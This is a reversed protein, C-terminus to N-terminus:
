AEPLNDFVSNNYAAANHQWATPLCIDLLSCAECGSQRVVPPINCSKLMQRTAEITQITLARLEASLIVSTRRRVARYFLFAEPIHCQHMEELCLAQACLQIEDAKHTAPRGHKYEVPVPLEGDVTPHYEVVDSLGSIGYQISKLPVSRAVRVGHIASGYASDVREHEIKGFTTLVNEAWERETHILACQRPCFAFHQLASLSVYEEEAFMDSIM